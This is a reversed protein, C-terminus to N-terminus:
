KGLMTMEGITEPIAGFLINAGVDFTRLNSLGSIESPITGFLGNTNLSVETVTNNQCVIGFWPSCIDTAATWESNVDWAEGDTAFFLTNLIFRETIEQQDDPNTADLDSNTELM